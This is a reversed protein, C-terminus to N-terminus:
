IPCPSPKGDTFEQYYIEPHGNKCIIMFGGLSVTWLSAIAGRVQVNDGRETSTFETDTDPIRAETKEQYEKVREILLEISHIHEEGCKLRVCAEQYAILAPVVARDKACLLLANQETYITGKCPNIALIKFKRDIIQTNM